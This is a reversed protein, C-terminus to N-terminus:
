AAALRREVATVVEDVEVDLLCMRERTCQRLHHCQCVADRSITIDRASWPGNRSPRTPGYLGVVPTALAAAIHTPGTDGSLMLAAGRLLAILDGLSTKPALVAAGPAERAVAEALGEEGPGWTVVSALGRREHIARAVAAFRAAPWRKNPWAAGPNLIAYAGGARRQLERAVASDVDAIPFEPTEVSMGIMSLLGLNMKVVHSRERPDYMGGGGPDYAATYFVRSISERLYGSSFGIVRAAGASRALAASKILGQLDFVVDYQNKRLARVMALIGLGGEVEGRDHIVLRRDLVPVFDLFERHRASVLWDITASPFARRLAGAVPIAHVIDGLSGLRVLLFRSPAVTM